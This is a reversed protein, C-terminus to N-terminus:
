RLLDVTSSFSLPVFVAVAALAVGCFFFLLAVKSSSSFFFSALQVASPFFCASSNIFFYASGPTSPILASNLFSTSAYWDGCNPCAANLALGPLFRWLSGGVQRSSVRTARGSSFAYMLAEHIYSRCFIALCYMRVWTGRSDVTSSKQFIIKSCLTIQTTTSHS